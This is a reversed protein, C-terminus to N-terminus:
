VLELNTHVFIHVYFLLIFNTVALDEFQLMVAFNEWHQHFRGKRSPDNIWFGVEIM